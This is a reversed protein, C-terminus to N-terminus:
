KKWSYCAVTNDNRKKVVTKWLCFGAHCILNILLLNIQLLAKIDAALVITIMWVIVVVWFSNWGAIQKKYFASGRKVLLILITIAMVISCALTGWYILFRISREVSIWPIMVAWGSAFEALGLLQQWSGILFRLGSKWAARCDAAFLLSQSSLAAMIWIICYCSFYVKTRWGELLKNHEREQEEVYCGYIEDYLKKLREREKVVETKVIIDVAEVAKRAEQHKKEAAAERCKLTEERRQAKAKAAEAERVARKETKDKENRLRENEEKLRENDQLILDAGSLRVIQDSQEQLKKQAQQLTSQLKSIESLSSRELQSYHDTRETVEDQLSEKEQQLQEIQDQMEEMQTLLDEENWLDESGKM